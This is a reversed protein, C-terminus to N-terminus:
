HKNALSSYCNVYDSLLIPSDFKKLQIPIQAELKVRNQQEILMVLSKAIEKTDLPNFYIAANGGVEPMSSINSTAVTKGHAFAELIPIGFGEFLSPYVCFLANSYLQHIDGTSPNQKLIIFPDNKTLSQVEDYTEGYKGAIILPYVKHELSQYATILRILNKRKNFSSICLIYPDKKSIGLSPIAPISLPIIRIKNESTKFYFMLDEKTQASPVVILDAVKQAYALKLKYIQRDIWNYNKPYRLNILDHITVMTKVGTKHIGFPLENSLGHYIDIKNATLYKNVGWIRWLWGFKKWGYEPQVIRFHEDSIDGSPSFLTYNLYDISSSHLGNVLWRAYNGLGTQNNFYRKADFGINIPQKKDNSV